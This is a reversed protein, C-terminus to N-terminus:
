QFRRILDSLIEHICSFTLFFPIVYIVTLLFEIIIGKVSMKKKRLFVYLISLGVFAVFSLIGFVISASHAIPNRAPTGDYYCIIFAFFCYMGLCLSVSIGLTTVSTKLTCNQKVFKTFILYFIGCLITPLAM